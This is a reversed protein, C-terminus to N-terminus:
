KWHRSQLSYTSGVVAVASVSLFYLVNRMDVVGKAFDDFQTRFSLLQLTLPPKDFAVKILADTATWFFVCLLLGVIFAVIQNHTWTSTLLGLALFATGILLLGLYGGAVAGLDPNGAMAVAVPFVFTVLLAVVLFGIAGLLKGLVLQVDSVPLTVLLELTGSKKEEAFLRMTVAPLIVALAWPAYEFLPRLTAERAGFFDASGDHGFFFLLGTVVLFVTAAIYAIPSDFTAALERRALTLVANM